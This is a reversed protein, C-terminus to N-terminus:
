QLERNEEWQDLKQLYISCPRYETDRGRIVAFLHPIARWECGPTRLVAALFYSLSSLGVIIFILAYILWGLVPLWVSKGFILDIVTTVLAFLLFTMQSKRGWNVDLLVDFFGSMASFAYISLIWFLGDPNRVESPSTLVLFWALTVGFSLRVLRGLFRPKPLYIAIQNGGVPQRLVNNKGQQITLYLLKCRM